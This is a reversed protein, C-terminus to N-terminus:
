EDETKLAAFQGERFFDAFVRDSRTHTGNEFLRKTCFNNETLFLSDLTEPLNGVTLTGDFANKEFHAVSMTDPFHTIDLDGSLRNRDIFLHEFDPPLDSVDITGSFTNDSACLITLTAPLQTLDISGEFKNSSVDLQQLYVPLATLDATGHHGNNGCECVETDFPLSTLDITCDFDNFGFMLIKIPVKRGIVLDGCLRNGELCLYDLWQPAKQLDLIGSLLNYPADFCLIGEPLKSVHFEGTLRNEGVSFIELSKPLKGCDLTGKFKRNSICFETVTDPLWELSITGQEELEIQDPDENEWEIKVVSKGDDGMEVMEWESVDLFNSNCDQFQRRNEDSMKSIVMEMLAQQSMSEYNLRGLASPDAGVFARLFLLVPM